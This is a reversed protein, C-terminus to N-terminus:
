PKPSDNPPPGPPPAKPAGQMSFVAQGLLSELDVSSQTREITGGPPIVKDDAGPKLQVFKDGLLGASSIAAVTDTPLEVSRDLSLHVVAQFTKPDLVLSTITGVKVGSIRVDGGDRIGEVGDFRAMVEYGGTPRVESSGYAVALFIGAVLLVVAGMVTEIANRNM